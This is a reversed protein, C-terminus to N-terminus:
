YMILSARTTLGSPTGLMLSGLSYICYYLQLVIKVYLTIRAPNSGAIKQKMLLCRTLQALPYRPLLYAPAM